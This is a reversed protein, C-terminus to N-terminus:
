TGARKELHEGIERNEVKVIAHIQMSPAVNMEGRINRIALILDMILQMDREIEANILKEDAVPYAAIMISEAKGKRGEERTGRGEARVGEPLTQWIEETIFPMIPHLLRLATELVHVLVTQTATREPSGKELFLSPKSLEVIGTATSM